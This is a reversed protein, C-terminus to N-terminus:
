PKARSKPSGILMLVTTAVGAVAGGKAAIVLVLPFHFSAGAILCRIFVIIMVASALGLFVVFGALISKAFATIATDGM